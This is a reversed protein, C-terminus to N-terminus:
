KGLAAQVTVAAEHVPWMVRAAPLRQVSLKGRVLALGLTIEWLEPFRGTYFKFVYRFLRAEISM